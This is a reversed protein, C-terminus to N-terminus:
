PERKAAAGYPDSARSHGRAICERGCSAQLSCALRMQFGGAKVPKSMLTIHVCWCVSAIGRATLAALQQKTHSIYTMAELRAGASETQVCGQYLICAYRPSGAESEQGPTDQVPPRVPAEKGFPSEETIDAPAPLMMSARRSETTMDQFVHRYTVDGMVALGTCLCQKMVCVFAWM